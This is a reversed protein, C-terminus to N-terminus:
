GNNNHSAFRNLAALIGAKTPTVDIVTVQAEADNRPPTDGMAAYEKRLEETPEFLDLFEKAAKNAESKNGHFSYGQHGDKVDSRSVRYLKM